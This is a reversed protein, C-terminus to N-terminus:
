NPKMAEEPLEMLRLGTTGRSSSSSYSWFSRVTALFFVLRFSPCAVARPFTVTARGALFCANLYHTWQEPAIMAVSVCFSDPGPERDRARAHACRRLWFGLSDVSILIRARFFHRGPINRYVAKRNQRPCSGAQGHDKGSSREACARQM